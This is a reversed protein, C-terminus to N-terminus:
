LDRNKLFQQAFYVCAVIAAVTIGLAWWYDAGQGSMLNIGWSLLVGPM